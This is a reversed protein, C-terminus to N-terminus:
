KALETIVDQWSVYKFNQPQSPMLNFGDQIVLLGQPYHEGLAAGTIAIGDTESTGDIQNDSNLGVRFSGVYNYPAEAQYIAYSNDGQSSVVLYNGLANNILGLGEVDAVLVDGM